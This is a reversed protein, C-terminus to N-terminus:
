NGPISPMNSICSGRRGFVFPPNGYAAPHPSSILLLFHCIFPKSRSWYNMPNNVISYGHRFIYPLTHCFQTNTTGHPYISSALYADGPDHEMYLSKIVYKYVHADKIYIYAALVHHTGRSPALFGSWRLTARCGGGKLSM